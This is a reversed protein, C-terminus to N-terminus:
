PRTANSTTGPQRRAFRRKARAGWLVLGSLSTLVALAAFVVLLPHHFDEREDYDMIHLMWFFDFLRWLDTRRAVVDGTTAAVYIRIDDPADFDIRWLPPKRGRVEVPVDADIKEVAVIRGPAALDRTAITRAEDEAVDSLRAGTDADVLAVADATEVVYVIRDRKREISVKTPRAVGSAAIADSPSIRAAIPRVDDTGRARHADGRVEEIPFLSFVLGGASWALLQLAVVLALWRHVAYSAKNFSM